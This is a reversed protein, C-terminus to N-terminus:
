EQNRSVWSNGARLPPNRSMWREAATGCNPVDMSRIRSMWRDPGGANVPFKLVDVSSSSFKLVDVSSSASGTSTGSEGGSEGSEIGQTPPHGWNAEGQIPPHGWNAWNSARVLDTPTGSKTGSETSTGSNPADASSRRDRAPM